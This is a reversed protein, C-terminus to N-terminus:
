LRGGRPVFGGDRVQAPINPPLTNGGVGGVVGLLFLSLEAPPHIDAGTVTRDRAEVDRVLDGLGQAAVSTTRGSSTRRHPGGEPVSAHTLHGLVIPNEGTVM